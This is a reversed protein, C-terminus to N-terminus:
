KRRRWAALGLGGMAALALTGPEPTPVASLTFTDQFGDRVGAKTFAYPGGIEYESGGDISSLTTPSSTLYFGLTIGLLTGTPNASPTDTSLNVRGFDFSAFGVGGITGTLSNVFFDFGTGAFLWGDDPYPDALSITVTGSGNGFSSGTETWDYTITSQAQTGAATLSLALTLLLKYNKM